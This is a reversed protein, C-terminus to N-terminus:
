TYYVFIFLDTNETYQTFGILKHSPVHEDRIKALCEALTGKLGQILGYNSVAVTM